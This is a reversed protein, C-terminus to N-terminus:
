NVTTSTLGTTTHRLKRDSRFFTRGNAKRLRFYPELVDLTRQMGVALHDRTADAARHVDGSSLAEM